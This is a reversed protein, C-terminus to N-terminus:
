RPLMNSRKSPSFPITATPDQVEAFRCLFDKQFIRWLRLFKFLFSVERQSMGGQVWAIAFVKEKDTMHKRAMSIRSFSPSNQVFSLQPSNVTTPLHPSSQAFIKRSSRQQAPSNFLPRVWSTLTSKLGTKLLTWAPFERCQFRFDIWIQAGFMEGCKWSKKFPRISNLSVYRWHVDNSIRLEKQIIVASANINSYPRNWTIRYLLFFTIPCNWHSTSVYFKTDPVTSRFLDKIKPKALNWQIIIVSRLGPCLKRDWLHCYIFYIAM